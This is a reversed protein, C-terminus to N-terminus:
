SCAKGEGEKEPSDPVRKGEGEKEPSDPIRKGREKRKRRTLFM